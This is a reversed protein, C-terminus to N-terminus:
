MRTTPCGIAVFPPAHSWELLGWDRNRTLEAAAAEVKAKAATELGSDSPVSEVCVSLGKYRGAEARELLSPKAETTTSQGDGDSSSWAIWAIAIIITLVLPVLAVLSARVSIVSDTYRPCPLGDFPGATGSSGCTFGQVSNYTIRRGAQRPAENVRTRRV